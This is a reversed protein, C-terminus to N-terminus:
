LKDLGAESNLDDIIDFDHDSEFLGLGWVGMMRSTRHTTSPLTELLVRLMPANGDIQIVPQSALPIKTSVLNSARHLTTSHSQSAPSLWPPPPHHTDITPHARKTTRKEYLTTYETFSKDCVQHQRIVLEIQKRLVEGQDSTRRVKACRSSHLIADFPTSELSAFVGNSTTEGRRIGLTYKHHTVVNSNRTDYSTPEIKDHECTGHKINHGRNVRCGARAKRKRPELQCRSQGPQADLADLADQTRSNEPSRTRCRRRAIGDLDRGRMEPSRGTSRQLMESLFLLLCPPPQSEQDHEGQRPSATSHLGDAPSPRRPTTPRNKTTNARESSDWWVCRTIRRLGPMLLVVTAGPVCGRCLPRANPCEQPFDDLTGIRLRRAKIFESANFQSSKKRAKFNGLAAECGGCIYTEVSGAFGLKSGDHVRFLRSLPVDWNWVMQVKCCACRWDHDRAWELIVKTVPWKSIERANVESPKVGKEKAIEQRVRSVNERHLAFDSFDKETLQPYPAVKELSTRCPECALAVSKYEDKVTALVESRMSLVPNAVWTVKDPDAGTEADTYWRDSVQRHQCLPCKFDQHQLQEFKEEPSVGTRETALFQGRERPTMKALKRRRAIADERSLSTEGALCAERYTRWFTYCGECVCTDPKEMSDPTGYWNIRRAKREVPVHQECCWCNEGNARVWRAISSDGRVGQRFPSAHNLGQWPFVEKPVAHRSAELMDATHCPNSGSGKYTRDYSELFDIWIGEAMLVVVLRTRKSRPNWTSLVRLDMTNGETTGKLLHASKSTKSTVDEGRDARRKVNNYGRTRDGGHGLEEGATGSGTYMFSCKQPDRVLDAYILWSDLEQSTPAPLDTFECERLVSGGMVARVDETTADRIEEWIQQQTMSCWADRMKKGMPFDPSNPVSKDNAADHREKIIHRTRDEFVQLYLARKQETFKPAEKPGLNLHKYADPDHKLKVSRRQGAKKEVPQPKKVVVKDKSATQPSAPPQYDADDDDDDDDGEKGLVDELAEGEPDHVVEDGVADEDDPLEKSQADEPSDPAADVKDRGKSNEEDVAADVDVKQRKKGRKKPAPETEPETVQEDAGRKKPVPKKSGQAQQKPRGTDQGAQAPEAGKEQSKAKSRTERAM